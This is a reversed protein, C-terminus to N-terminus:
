LDLYWCLMVEHAVAPIAAYGHVRIEGLRAGMKQYFRCAPVNINQTEIKMQRCGRERSWEAVRRFLLIGVGRAEPKVRLDWFVSLDQSAELIFVDSNKYAVAAAGVPSGNYKALFFGWNKVTYKEPWDVPTEGYVDYDKIYPEEVAIEHLRIGELGGQLLEPQLVTRVWLRSPITAYENLQTPNIEEVQVSM